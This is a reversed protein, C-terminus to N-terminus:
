TRQGGPMLDFIRGDTRNLRVAVTRGASRSEMAIKMASDIAAKQTPYPTSHKGAHLVKWHGRHRVVDYTMTPLAEVVGDLKPGGDIKPEMTTTLEQVADHM